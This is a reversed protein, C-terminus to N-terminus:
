PPTGFILAGAARLSAVVAADVAVHSDKYLPSNHQTPMDIQILIGLVVPLAFYLFQNTGKTYIVDKVAVPIGHLPGRQTVPIEDLLRAQQLVADPNLHVWAKVAPDRSEIRSLLARAYSEVTLTNSQILQLAETATLRHAEMTTTTPSLSLPLLPPNITPLDGLNGKEKELEM